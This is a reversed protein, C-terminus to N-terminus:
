EAEWADLAADLQASWGDLVAAHAEAEAVAETRLRKVAAVTAAKSGPIDAPDIITDFSYTDVDEGDTRTASVRIRKEALNTITLQTEWTAM